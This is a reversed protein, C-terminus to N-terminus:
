LINVKSGNTGAWCKRGLATVNGTALQSSRCRGYEGQSGWQQRMCKHVRVCEYLNMHETDYVITYKLIAFGLELKGPTNNICFYGVSENDTYGYYYYEDSCVEKTVTM